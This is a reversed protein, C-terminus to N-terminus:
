TLDLQWIGGLKRGGGGGGQAARSDKVVGTGEKGDEVGGGGAVALHRAAKWGRM